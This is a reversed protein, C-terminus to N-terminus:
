KLQKSTLLIYEGDYPLKKIVKSIIKLNYNHHVALDLDKLVNKQDELQQSSYTVHVTKGFEAYRRITELGTKECVNGYSGCRFTWTLVELESLLDEEHHQRLKWMKRRGNGKHDSVNIDSILPIINPMSITIDAAM